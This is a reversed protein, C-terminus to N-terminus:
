AGSFIGARGSARRLTEDLAGTARCLGLPEFAALFRELDPNFGLLVSAYPNSIKIKGTVPDRPPEGTEPDVFRLRKRVWCEAGSFRLLDQLYGQEFRNCPVLAIGETGRSAEAVIKAYWARSCDGYPPNVFFPANWECALGDPGGPFCILRAGTRNSATTAPDLPIVGDPFYARVRELVREPTGWDLRRARKETPPKGEPM